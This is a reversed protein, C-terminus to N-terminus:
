QLYLKELDFRKIESGDLEEGADYAEKLREYATQIEGRMIGQVYCDGVLTHCRQLGKDSLLAVGGRRVVFPTRSGFPVYISDGTRTGPPGLGIYGKSTIFFRRGLCNSVISKNLNRVPTEDIGRQQAYEPLSLHQHNLVWDEWNKFMAFDGDELPQYAGDGMGMELIFLPRRNGHPHRFWKVGACVTQMFAYEFTGGGLPYEDPRFYKMTKAASSWDKLVHASSLTETLVGRAESNHGPPVFLVPGADLIIDIRLSDTSLIYDDHVEIPVDTISMCNTLLLKAQRDTHHYPTPAEFDPVWSPLYPGYTRNYKIMRTLTETTPSDHSQIFSHLDRHDSWRAQIGCLIDFNRSGRILKVTANRFVHYSSISYDPIIPETDMWDPVLGLAGYIKDRPDTADRRRTHWIYASLKTRNQHMFGGRPAVAGEKGYDKIFRVVEDDGRRLLQSQEVELIENSIKTLTAWFHQVHSRTEFCCSTRHREITLGASAFIEWPASIQGYMVTVERALVIEQVVWMRSWWSREFIELLAGLIRERFSDQEATGQKVLALIHADQSLMYLVTFALLVTDDMFVESSNKREGDDIYLQSSSSTSLEEPLRENLTTKLQPLDPLRKLFSYPRLADPAVSEEPGLWVVVSKAKSYIQGMISVQQGREATDAQNICVADVWLYRDHDEHRLHQLASVLNRTVPRPDDNVQIPQTASSDGWTYSLAEYEPEDTLSVHELRCRVPDRHSGKLLILLRISPPEAALPEYM